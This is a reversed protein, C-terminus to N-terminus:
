GSPPKPTKNPMTTMSTPSMPKMTTSPMPKMTTSPMPKMPTSPRWLEPCNVFCGINRIFLLRGLNKCFTGCFVVRAPELLAGGFRLSRASPETDPTRPKSRETAARQM